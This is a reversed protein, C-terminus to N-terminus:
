AQNWHIISLYTFKTLIQNNINQYTLYRIPKRQDQVVNILNGYSNEM